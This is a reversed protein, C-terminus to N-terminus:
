LGAFKYGVGWVTLVFHPHSPDQELKTRLRNIHSNVTHEYGSHKYGWVADLLQSRSFVVGPHRALHLLLDFETGTLEIPEGHLSVQRRAADLELGDFRLQEPVTNHKKSLMEVRRLLAKVRAQLERVGFPKTLYDDAGLELGVVRDAESDRATLMLIAVSSEAARLRRCLELGDLGPLMLDLVVLDYSGTLAMELGRAGDDCCNVDHYLDTLNMSILQQIDADDEIVLIQQKGVRATM